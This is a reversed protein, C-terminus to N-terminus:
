GLLASVSQDAMKNNTDTNTDTAGPVLREVAQRQHSPSLHSYRITMVLTKHGALGKITLLDVGAM